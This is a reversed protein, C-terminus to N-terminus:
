IFVCIMRLLILIVM